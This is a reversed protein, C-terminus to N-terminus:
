ILPLKSINHFAIHLPNLSWDLFKKLFGAEHLQRLSCGLGVWSTTVSVKINAMPTVKTSFNCFLLVLIIMELKYKQLSESYWPTESIYPFKIILYGKTLQNILPIFFVLVYLWEPCVSGLYGSKWNQEIQFTYNSVM